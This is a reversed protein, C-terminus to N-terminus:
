LFLAAVRARGAVARLGLVAVAVLVLLLTVLACAEGVAGGAARSLAAPAAPELAPSALFAATAVTVLGNVFFFAFVAVGATALAPAVVRVLTRGAGAGLGLAAAETAPDIRRLTEGAVQLGGPLKWFVVSATLAVLAARATAPPGGLVVLYGLGLVVGPVMAPLTAVLRVLAAAPLRPRALLYALTLALVGGAVGAILAVALSWGVARADPGALTAWHVLSPAWDGPGRVASAVVVVLLAGTVAVTATAAVVTLPWRVEPAASRWPRAAHGLVAPSWGAPLPRARNLWWAALCPPILVLALASAGATDGAAVARAYIARTLVPHEGGVLLPNGLDALSLLFVVVSASRLAPWALPLTVRRFITWAGAGLSEAADERDGDLAGLGSALLVYAHPVFTLAQAAVLAGAGQAGAGLLVLVALGAAFPPALLPLRAAVALLRRGPVDARAVAYALPAALALTAATSAVALSLSGLVARAVDAGAVRAGAAAAVVAALPWVVFAALLALAAALGAAARGGGVAVDTAPPGLVRSLSWSM